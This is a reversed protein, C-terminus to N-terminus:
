FLIQGSRENHDGSRSDLKPAERTADFVTASLNTDVRLFRPLHSHGDTEYKKDHPGGRVRSGFRAKATACGQDDCRNKRAFGAFM